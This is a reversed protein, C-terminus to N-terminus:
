LGVDATNAAAHTRQLAEILCCMKLGSDQSGVAVGQRGGFCFCLAEGM